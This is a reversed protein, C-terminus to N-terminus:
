CRPPSAPPTTSRGRSTPASAGDGAAPDSGHKVFDHFGGGTVYLARIPRAAAAGPRESARQEAAGRARGHPVVRRAGRPRHIHRPRRRPPVHPLRTMFAPEELTRLPRGRRNHRRGRATAFKHGRTPASQRRRGAPLRSAPVRSGNAAVRRGNAADRKRARGCGRLTVPCRAGERAQVTHLGRRAVSGPCRTPSARRSRRRRRSRFPSQPM